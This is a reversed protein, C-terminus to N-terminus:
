GHNGEVIVRVSGVCGPGAVSQASEFSDYLTSFDAQFLNIRYPSRSRVPYLNAWWELAEDHRPMMDNDHRPVMDNWTEYSDCMRGDRTLLAIDGGGPPGFSVVIPFAVDGDLIYRVTYERKGDRSPYTGGLEFTNM